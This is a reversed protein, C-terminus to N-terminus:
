MDVELLVKLTRYSENQVILLVKITSQYKLAHGYMKANSTNKKSQHEARAQLFM